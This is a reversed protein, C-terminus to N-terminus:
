KVGQDVTNERDPIKAHIMNWLNRDEQGLRWFGISHIGLSKYIRAKELISDPNEYYVSVTVTDEFTFSPYSTNLDRLDTRSTLIKGISSNKFARDNKKDQWSRGYFPIGFIIKDRDMEKIAYQAVQTCWESSAIPGPKSGSWHEDYAMIFVRDAIAAIRKYDFGKNGTSTYAPVAVSLTKTGIAAKIDKLFDCFKRSDDPHVSELDIQLGDYDRSLASIGDIVRKRFKLDPNLIFHTLSMNNINALVIHLRQNKRLKLTSPYKPLILGGKYDLEASFYCLDTIPENGTYENEEGKMLYAWIERFSESGRQGSLMDSGKSPAGMCGNILIMAIICLYVKRVVKM